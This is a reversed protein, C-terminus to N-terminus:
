RAASLTRGVFQRPERLSALSPEAPNPHADDPEASDPRVDCDIQGVEADSVEDKDIGIRAM